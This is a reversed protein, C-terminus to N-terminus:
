SDLPAGQVSELRFDLSQLDVSAISAPPMHHWGSTDIGASTFATTGDDLRLYSMQYYHELHDLPLDEDSLGSARFEALPTRAGENSHVAILEKETLLLCNLSAAPFLERLRAVTARTAEYLSAGTALNQRILAFYLESDTGGEVGELFASDLLRRLSALPTVAGNHAFAIGETLFPHSNEVAVTM